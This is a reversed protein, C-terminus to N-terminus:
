FGFTRIFIYDMWEGHKIGREALAREFERRAAQEVQVDGGSDAIRKEQAERLEWLENLSDADM